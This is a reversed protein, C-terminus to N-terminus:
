YTLGKKRKKIRGGCATIHAAAERAVAEQYQLWEEDSWDDPKQSLTGYVGAKLLTKRWAKADSERGINAISEALASLNAARAASAMNSNDENEKAQQLAAQAYKLRNEQNAMEAQLGMQANAQNTARNFQERQLMMEYDQMAGKRLLDGSAIQANYDAALINAWRSPSSSQMLADRTAAAQQTAQNAAYKTDFHTVPIYNGIPTFGVSQFPPIYSFQTPTNTAGMLDSAVVGLNVLPEAFRLGSLSNSSKGEEENDLKMWIKRNDPSDLYGLTQKWFANIAADAEPDDDIVEEEPGYLHGGEAKKHAQNYDRVAEQTRALIMALYDLGDKSIPDNPREESEKQATTFAEAFTMDKPGKIKYKKKVEEPVTLRNSFVYDNYVAEGEEVLNPKGDPAIGMQVGEHPNNEHTGGNGIISVNNTFDDSMLLGGEAHHWKAANRAFNAKKRMAPSYNDPNALVQSAFEQVSKGHQKAAATFTGKKSPAIHINGGNAFISIPGGYAAYNLLTEAKQNEKIASAAIDRKAVSQANIASIKENLEAINNRDAFYGIAGKFPNFVGTEFSRGLATEFETRGTIDKTGSVYNLSPANRYADLLEQNSTPMVTANNFANIENEKGTTDLGKYANIQGKVANLVMPAIQTILSITGGDLYKHSNHKKCSM